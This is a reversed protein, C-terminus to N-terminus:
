HPRGGGHPVGGAGGGPRTAPGPPPGVGDDPRHPDEPGMPPSPPADGRGGDRLIMTGAGGELPVRLLDLTWKPAGQDESLVLISRGDPSIAAGYDDESSQFALWEWGRRGQARLCRSGRQRLSRDELWILRGEPDRGLVRVM